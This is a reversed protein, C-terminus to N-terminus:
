CVAGSHVSWCPRGDPTQVREATGVSGDRSVYTGYQVAKKDAGAVSEPLGVTERAFARLAIKRQEPTALLEGPLRLAADVVRDQLFPTVPEVGAASLGCV